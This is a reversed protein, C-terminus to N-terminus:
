YAVNELKCVSYCLFNIHRNIFKLSQIKLSYFFNNYVFFFRYLIIIWIKSAKWKWHTFCIVIYLPFHIHCNIFKIHKTNDTLFSIIAFCKFHLSTLYFYLIIYIFWTMKLLVTRKSLLADDIVGADIISNNLSLRSRIFMGGKNSWFLYVFTSFSAGTM